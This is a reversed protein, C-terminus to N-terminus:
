RVGLEEAEEPSLSVVYAGDADYGAWWGDAFQEWTEVRDLMQKGKEVLRVTGHPHSM